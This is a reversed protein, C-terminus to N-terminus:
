GIIGIDIRFQNDYEDDELKYVMECYISDDTEVSINVEKQRKYLSIISAYIIKKTNPKGEFDGIKDIVENLEEEDLQDYSVFHNSYYNDLIPSGLVSDIFSFYSIFRGRIMDSMRSLKEASQEPTMMQFISITYKEIANILAASNHQYARNTIEFEDQEGIRMGVETGKDIISAMLSDMGASQCRNARLGDVIYGAFIEANSVTDAENIYKIHAMRLSYEDYPENDGLWKAIEELNRMYIQPDYKEVNLAPFDVYVLHNLKNELRQGIINDERKYPDLYYNHSSANRSLVVNLDRNGEGNDFSISFDRILAHPLVSYVCFLLGIMSRENGEFQIYLPEHVTKDKIQAYVGRIIYGLEGPSIGIGRLESLLNMPANRKLEEPIQIADEENDKFNDAAITLYKNPDYIMGETKWPIIFTHSFFIQEEM